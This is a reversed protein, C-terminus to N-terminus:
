PTRVIPLRRVRVRQPEIVVVAGAALDAEVAPLNAILLALLSGPRRDAMRRFLVVSPTVVERSALLAGFDTDM